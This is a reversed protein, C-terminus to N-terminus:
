LLREYFLLHPLMDDPIETYPGRRSFGLGDYLRQAAALTSSTDLVVRAFGDSRAQEVLAACIATALGNRRADPIVFVRKIEATDARIPQTMGCGIATGQADRGLLIIGRPRAHLRALDAMLDNYRAVPYFRETISRDQASNNLLFDRYAWCLRRVAEVDETTRAPSLTFRDDACSQVAPM